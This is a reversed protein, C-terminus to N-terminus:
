SFPSRSKVPKKPDLVVFPMQEIKNEITTITAKMQETDTSFFDKLQQIYPQFQEKIDSAVNAKFSDLAKLVPSLDIDKPKPLAKIAALVPSLDLKQPEPIRIASIGELITDLKSLDVRPPQPPAPINAIEEQVIQRVKKYDIDVAGGIGLNPNVRDQVLYTDIKEGYNPSKTTYGSDTYVSTLISIYFGEGSTDAPVQWPKSFRRSGQDTLNVTEILADTRANRVVAQVYYTSSDTHDELQRVITFYERPRLQM